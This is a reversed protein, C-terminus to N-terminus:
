KTWVRWRPCYWVCSGGKAQDRRSSILNTMYSATSSKIKTGQGQVLDCVEKVVPEFIEKIQPATMVLFGCDLGAEEDDPLGPFPVNVEAHEEENFNRKVFEEWYRLGMQWCKGKKLKMEDFREKGIRNRV